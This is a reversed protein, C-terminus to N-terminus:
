SAGHAYFRPTADVSWVPEYAGGADFLIKEPRKETAELIRVRGGQLVQVWAHGGGDFIGVTFRADWGLRALQAWAWLAHDECDGAREKEFDEPHLWVDRRGRGEDRAYRCRALFDRVEEWGALPRLEAKLYREFARALSMGRRAGYSRLRPHDGVLAALRSPAIPM